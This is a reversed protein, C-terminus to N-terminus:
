QIMLGGAPRGGNSCGFHRMLERRVGASWLRKADVRVM